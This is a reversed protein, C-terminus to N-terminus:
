KSTWNKPPHVDAPQVLIQFPKNDEDSKGGYVLTGDSYTLSSRDGLSYRGTPNKVLYQEATYTTLSWFGEETLPPKSGFTITYGERPKINLAGKGYNPYLAESPTMALYGFYCFYARMKYALGYDGQKAPNLMHWGNGLSPNNHAVTDKVAAVAQKAVSGLDKTQPEYRGGHIGAAKLMRNVRPLDSINRPPSYPNFRATMEMIREATDEPLSGNLMDVTLSPANHRSDRGGQISVPDLKTENQIAHVEDLDGGKDTVLYRALFTGYVTPANIFGDYGNCDMGDSCLQVGPEQPVAPAYRVFFSGPNTNSTSGINAYNNGYSFVSYTTPQLATSRNVYMDYFSFAWYRDSICPVELKLDHHSLDIILTSYM